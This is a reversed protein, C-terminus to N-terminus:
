MMTESCILSVLGPQEPTSATLIQKLIEGVLAKEILELQLKSTVFIICPKKEKDYNTRLREDLKKLFITIPQSPCTFSGM